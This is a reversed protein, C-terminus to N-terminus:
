GFQKKAAAEFLEWVSWRLADPAKEKILRVTEQDINLPDEGTLVGIDPCVIRNPSKATCDCFESINKLVNVYFVPKGANKFESVVIKAADAFRDFSEEIGGGKVWLAGQPCANVCECCGSCDKLDITVKDNVLHVFGDECARVCAGCKICKSEDYLPKSQMHIKRKSEKNVCGMALNKLAGGFATLSHGKAHSLVLLADAELLETPIGYGGIMRAKDDDGIVVEFDAYGYEKAFKLYSEKTYRARRYLTTTDFLFPEGGAAKIKEVIVRVDEPSMRTKLNNIEGMHLKVAIRGKLPPLSVDNVKEFFM